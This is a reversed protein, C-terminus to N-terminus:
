TTRSYGAPDGEETLADDLHTAVRVHDRSKRALEDRKAELKARLHRLQEATLTTQAV